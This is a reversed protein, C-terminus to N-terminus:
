WIVYLSFLRLKDAGHLRASTIFYLTVNVTITSASLESAACVLARSATSPKGSGPSSTITDTASKAIRLKDAGATLSRSATTNASPQVPAANAAPPVHGEVAFM